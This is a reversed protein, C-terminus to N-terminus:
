GSKLEPFDELCFGQPGFLRKAREMEFEETVFSIGNFNASTVEGVLIKGERLYLDIRSYLLGQSMITAVELLRRYTDDGPYIADFADQLVQQDNSSSGITDCWKAQMDLYFMLDPFGNKGRLSRFMLTDRPEGRLCHIKFELTDPAGLWEEVIVARAIGLYNRERGRLYHNFRLWAKIKKRDVPEGQKRIIIQGSSHAPKIVCQAPFEFQDIERDTHLTRYTPVAYPEGLREEVFQKLKIKDSLQRRLPTEIEPSGKLVALFDM